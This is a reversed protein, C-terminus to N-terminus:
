ITSAIDDMFVKMTRVYEQYTLDGFDLVVHEAGAEKFEALREGLEELTLLYRDKSEVHLDLHLRLSFTINRGGLMSLLKRRLSHYDSPTIPLDNYTIPQWGDGTEVVRRLARDSAGGWWIPPHPKQLPKPEFVCDRFKFYKGNFEPSDKTWLEKFINIAETAYEGRKKYDAGMFEFEPLDDVGRGLGVGVILRGNSLVDITSLQKAATIPHRLPLSLISTGIRISTTVAAIHALVTLSEFIRGYPYAYEKSMIQHDITWVDSYGLSEAEIAVRRIGEPSANNGYTPLNIGFRM